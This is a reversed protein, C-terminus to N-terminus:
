IEEADEFDKLGEAVKRVKVRANRAVKKLYEEFPIGSRAAHGILSMADLEVPPIPTTM